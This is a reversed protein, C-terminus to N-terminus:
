QIKRREENDIAQQWALYGGEGRVCDYLLHAVARARYRKWSWWAYHYDALKLCNELFELNAFDFGYRSGDSAATRMDHIFAAPAFIALHRTLKARVAAPLFSPGIGNYGDSLQEYSFSSIFDLGELKAEVAIKLLEDIEAARQADRKQKAEGM